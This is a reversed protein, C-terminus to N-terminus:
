MEKNAADCSTNGLIHVHGHLGARNQAPLSNWRATSLVQLQKDGGGGVGGM